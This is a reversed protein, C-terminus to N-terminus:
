THHVPTSLIQRYGQTTARRDFSGQKISRIERWGRHAFVLTWGAAASMYFPEGRPRVLGDPHPGPPRRHRRRCPPNSGARSTKRSSVPAFVFMVRRHPRAGRPSRRWALAGIPWHWVVVIVFPVAAAMGDIVPVKTEGIPLPSRFRRQGRRFLRELLDREGGIALPRPHRDDDAAVIARAGEIFTQSVKLPQVIRVVLDDDDM